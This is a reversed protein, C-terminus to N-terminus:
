MECFAPRFVGNVEFANRTGSPSSTKPGSTNQPSTRVGVDNGRFLSPTSVFSFAQSRKTSPVYNGSFTCQRSEATSAILRVIQGVLQAHHLIHSIAYPMHVYLLYVDAMSDGIVVSPSNHRSPM